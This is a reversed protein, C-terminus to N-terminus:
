FKSRGLIKLSEEPNSQWAEENFKRFEASGMIRSVKHPCYLKTCGHKASIREPMLEFREIMSPHWLRDHILKWEPILASRRPKKLEYRHGQRM